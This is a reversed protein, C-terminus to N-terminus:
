ACAIHSHMHMYTNVCAKFLCPDYYTSAHAAPALMHAHVKASMDPYSCAYKMCESYTWGDDNPKSVPIYHCTDRDLWYAGGPERQSM